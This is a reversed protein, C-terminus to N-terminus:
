DPALHTLLSVVSFSFVDCLFYIIAMKVKINSSM